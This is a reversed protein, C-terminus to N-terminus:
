RRIPGTNTRRSSISLGDRDADIKSAAIAAPIALFLFLPRGIRQMPAESLRAPFSGLDTCTSRATSEPAAVDSM